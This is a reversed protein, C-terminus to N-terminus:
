TLKGTKLAIFLKRTVICRRLIAAPLALVLRLSRPHINRTEPTSNHETRRNLPRLQIATTRAPAQRNLARKLRGAPRASHQETRTMRGSLIAAPHAPRFNVATATTLPKERFAIFCLKATTRAFKRVSRLSLNINLPALWVLREM